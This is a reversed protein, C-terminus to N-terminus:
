KIFVFDRQITFSTFFLITETLIKAAIINIGFNSMISILSFSLIALAIFLVLYKMLPIFRSSTNRFVLNKNVFFNTGGSLLRAAIFAILFNKNTLYLITFIFFDISSAFMSSFAFRLLLFYIKMSDILPNFHSSRNGELYVTDIPVECFDFRKEKPIMLMNMEYEYHEGNLQLLSPIMTLPICRLGSQTDSIKEGTLFRYIYRTLFNGLRSRLPTQKDFSRAGIVITNPNKKFADAVKCIDHPLHQGDCDVTIIGLLHPFNLYCFNFGTKLARGKGLNAAHHLVHCNQMQSLMAFLKHCSTESGDNVVVIEKFGKALLAEVLAILNRGPNYAPILIAVNTM